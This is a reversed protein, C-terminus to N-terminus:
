DPYKAFPKDRSISHGTVISLIMERWFTLKQGVTKLLSRSQCLERRKYYPRTAKVGGPNLHQLSQNLLPPWCLPFQLAKYLAIRCLWKSWCVGSSTRQQRNPSRTVANFTLLNSSRLRNKDNRIISSSLSLIVLHYGEAKIM